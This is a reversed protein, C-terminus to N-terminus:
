NSFIIFLEHKINAIKLMLKKITSYMGELFLQQVGVATCQEVHCFVETVCV